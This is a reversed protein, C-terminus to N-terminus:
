YMSLHIFMCVSLDVSLKLPLFLFQHVSPSVFCFIVFLHKYPHISPFKNKYLTVSLNDKANIFTNNSQTSDEDCQHHFM